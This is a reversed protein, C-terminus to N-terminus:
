RDLNVKPASTLGVGPEKQMKRSARKNKKLILREDEDGSEDDDDETNENEDVSKTAAVAPETESVRNQKRLARSADYPFMKKLKNSLVHVEQQGTVFILIGGEPLKRHIKCTKSISFLLFYNCIRNIHNLFFNSISKNVKKFAESLYDEYTNKNFHVSVPFQRSDVKISPPIDKFLRQNETFDEVRLTASM